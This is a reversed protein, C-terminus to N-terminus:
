VELAEDIIKRIEQYEVTNIKGGVIFDRAKVLAEALKQERAKLKM